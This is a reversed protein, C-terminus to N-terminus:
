CQVGWALPTVDIRPWFSVFHEVSCNAHLLLLLPCCPSEALAGSEHDVGSVGVEAARVAGAGGEASAEVLGRPARLDADRARVGM